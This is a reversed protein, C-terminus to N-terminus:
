RPVQQREGPIGMKLEDEFTKPKRKIPHGNSDTDRMSAYWQVAGPELYERAMGGAWHRFNHGGETAEVLHKPGEILPMNFVFAGGSRMMSDLAGQLAPMAHRRDEDYVHHALAAMQAVEWAPSHTWHHSLTGEPTKIDGYGVSPNAPKHGPSYLGGMSQYGAWGAAMIGLGVSGKKLKRMIDNAQQPSLKALDASWADMLGRPLGTAYELGEKVMNTPIKVIPMQSRLVATGVQGAVGSKDMRKLTGNLWDVLKNEGQLKAAKSEAYAEAMILSQATNTVMAKDIQDSSLGSRALEARRNKGIRELARAYAYNELATKTADHLKGVIELMPHPTFSPREYLAQRDSQGKVLKDRIDKLTQKSFAAGLGKAHAGLQLGGGELTALRDIDAIKPMHRWVSGSTDEALTSVVRWFSAGALHSFVSPSSLIFARMVSNATTMARYLRSQGQYEQKQMAMDARARARELDAQLAQTKADYEPKPRPKTTFDGSKIKAEVKTIEAQIAKQRAANKRADPSHYADRLDKKLQAMRQQLESKTNGGTPLKGFGSISDAIEGKDMPAFEHIRAHIADVIAHADTVGMELQAKAMERLLAVAEKTPKCTAM